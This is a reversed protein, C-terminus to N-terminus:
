HCPYAAALSHLADSTPTCWGGCIHGNQHMWPRMKELAVEVTIDVPLCINEFNRDHAGHYIEIVEISTRVIGYCTAGIPANEDLSCFDILRKHDPAAYSNGPAYISALMLALAGLLLHVPNPQLRNMATM